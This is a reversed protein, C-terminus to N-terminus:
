GVDLLEQAWRRGFTSLILLCQQFYSMWLDDETSTPSFCQGASTVQRASIMQPQPPAGTVSQM